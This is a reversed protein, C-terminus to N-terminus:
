LQFVLYVGPNDQRAPETPTQNEQWARKSKIVVCNQGKLYRKKARSFTM